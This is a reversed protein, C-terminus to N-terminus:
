RSTTTSSGSPSIPLQLEGGLVPSFLFDHFGDTVGALRLLTAVQAWHRIEHILVHGMLKRPTATLRNGFFDFEKMGDWDQTPIGAIFSRLESRSLRGFGFLADVNDSPVVSTDTIARNSLRDLYRKEASFIHRILDGVTQFRNNGVPGAPTRLVPDGRKALCEQWKMREWDTYEILENLSLGVAM